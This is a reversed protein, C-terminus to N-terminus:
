GADSSPSTQALDGAAGDPQTSLNSMACTGRGRQNGQHKLRRSAPGCPLCQSREANWALRMLRGRQRAAPHPEGPCAASFDADTM